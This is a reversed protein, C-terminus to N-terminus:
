REVRSNGYVNGYMQEFDTLFQMAKCMLEELYKNSLGLRTISDENLVYRLGDNGLGLGQQLCLADAVHVIDISRCPEPANEPNHHWRIIARVKQPFNWNEAIKEGVQTHDFGIIEWEAEEFPIDKSESLKWIESFKERIFEGIVIKGIDHILASTFIFGCEGTGIADCIMGSVAAVANSHLWLERASLNYGEAPKDLFSRMTSSMAIKFIQRIGLRKIALSLTDVGGITSYFVSNAAKLVSATLVPDIEIIKSIDKEGSNPNNIVAILRHAIEPIVQIRSIREEILDNIQM